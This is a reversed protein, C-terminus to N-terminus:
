RRRSAAEPDLDRYAPEGRLELEWTELPPEPQYGREVYSRIWQAARKEAHKANLVQGSDDMRLVNAFVAFAQELGSPEHFIVTYDIGELVPLGVTGNALWLAFRRFAANVSPSLEQM